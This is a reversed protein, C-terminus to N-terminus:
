ENFDYILDVLGDVFVLDAGSNKIAFELLSVREDIDFERLTLVELRDFDDSETSMGSLNLIRKYLNKSDCASQETDIVVVKKINPSSQLRWLSGSLAAAAMIAVAMTKGSKEKAQINAINGRPFIGIGDVCLLYEPEDINDNVSIRCSNYVLEM